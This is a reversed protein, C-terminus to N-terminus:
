NLVLFALPIIPIAAFQCASGQQIHWTTRLEWNTCYM